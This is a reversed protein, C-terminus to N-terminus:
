LKFTYSLTFTYTNIGNARYSVVSENDAYKTISELISMHADTVTKVCTAEYTDIKFQEWEDNIM